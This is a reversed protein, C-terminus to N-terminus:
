CTMKVKGDGCCEYLNTNFTHAICCDRAGNYTKFPFRLPYEGCCAKDSKIGTTIPCETQWDFGNAHRHNPNVTGGDVLTYRLWQVLFWGEVRCTWSECTDASNQADCEVILNEMSMGSPQGVSTASNYPIEWPVCPMGMSESDMIICTYGDHLTKCFQDIEDVPHSRGQGHDQEFYCWCGYEDILGMDQKLLARDGFPGMDMNAAANALDQLNAAATAILASAIILKM